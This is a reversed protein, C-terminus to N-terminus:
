AQEDLAHPDEEKLPTEEEETSEQKYSSRRKNSSHDDGGTSHRSRVEGVPPTSVLPNTIAFNDM